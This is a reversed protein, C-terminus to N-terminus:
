RRSTVKELAARRTAKYDMFEFRDKTGMSRYTLDDLEAAGEPSLDRNLLTDYRHVRNAWTYNTTGKPVAKGTVDCYTVTM